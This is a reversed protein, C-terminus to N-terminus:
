APDISVWRRQSSNWSITIFDAGNLIDVLGGYYDSGRSKKRWFKTYDVWSPDSFIANICDQDVVRSFSLKRIVMNTEDAIQLGEVVTTPGESVCITTTQNGGENKQHFRLGWGTPSGLLLPAYFEALMTFKIVPLEEGGTRGANPNSSSAYKPLDTWL